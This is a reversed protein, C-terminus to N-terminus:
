KCRATELRDWADRAPSRALKWELKGNSKNAVWDRKLDAEVDDFKRGTYKIYSEWGYRYAPQFHEYNANKFFYPRSQFNARWYTDEVTPNVMEAASKGALGGALGGAAAGAAIGIPGGVAGLAAGAVAGATTGAAVGIPHSGHEATIMDENLNKEHKEIKQEAM